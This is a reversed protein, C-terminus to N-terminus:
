RLAETYATRNVQSARVRIDEHGAGTDGEPKQKFTKM